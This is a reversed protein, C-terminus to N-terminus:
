KLKELIEPLKERAAAEGRGIMEDRSRMDRYNFGALDPEILVDTAQVSRITNNNMMIRFTYFILDFVTKPTSTHIRDANLNISIVFDAGMDRVVDAPVSDIVGGDVLLNGEWETPEFIGPVSCSARVARALPGSRLVTLEGKGIDVATAAFPTRLEEIRRTELISELLHEMKETKLLGLRHLVPSVFLGWNVSESMTRMDQVTFGECYFAGVLSGVSTGAVYDAKIGAEELVKLVGIHAFGRSAGGGFALGIKKKKKM